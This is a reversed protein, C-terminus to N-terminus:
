KKKTLEQRQQDLKRKRLYNIQLDINKKKRETDKKLQKKQANLQLIQRDYDM